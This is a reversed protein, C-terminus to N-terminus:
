ILSPETPGFDHVKEIFSRPLDITADSDTKRVEFLRGKDAMVMWQSGEFDRPVTPAIRVRSYVKLDPAATPAPAATKGLRHRAEAEADRKWKKLVEVTFRVPDNDVLKACNQCM